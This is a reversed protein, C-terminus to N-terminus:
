APELPSQSKFDTAKDDVAASSARTFRVCGPARRSIRAVFRRRIRASFPSLWSASASRQSISRVYMLPTSRPRLFTEISVRSRNALPSRSSGQRRMLRGSASRQGQHASARGPRCRPTVTCPECRDAHECRDSQDRRGCQLRIKDRRGSTGGAGSPRQSVPNPMRRGGAHRHDAARRSREPRTRGPDLGSSGTRRPLAARESFRFNRKCQLWHANDDVLSPSHNPVISRAGFVSRQPRRSRILM